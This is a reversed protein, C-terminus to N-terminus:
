TRRPLPSQAHTAQNFMHEETELEAGTQYVASTGIREIAVSRLKEHSPSLKRSYIFCTATTSTISLPSIVSTYLTDIFFILLIIIIM